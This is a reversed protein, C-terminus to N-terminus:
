DEFINEVESTESDKEVKKNGTIRLPDISSWLPTVAMLSGFLAGGRLMWALVGATTSISVGVAVDDGLQFKRRNENQTSEIDKQAQSLGSQFNKNSIVQSLSINSDVKIDVSSVSLKANEEFLYISEIENHQRVALTQLLDREVLLAASESEFDRHTTTDLLGQEQDIPVTASAPAASFEATRNAQGSNSDGSTNNEDPTEEISTSLENANIVDDTDAVTEVPSLGAPAEPIRFDILPEEKAFFFEPAGTINVTATATDGDENTISYVFLDDSNNSGDHTYLFTGDSNITVTGNDPQQM